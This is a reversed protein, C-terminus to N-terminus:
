HNSHEASGEWGERPTQEFGPTPNLEIPMILAYRAM